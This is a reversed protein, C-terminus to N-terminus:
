GRRLRGRVFAAVARRETAQLALGWSAATYIVAIIAGYLLIGAYGEPERAGRLLVATALAVAVPLLFPIATARLHEWLSLGLARCSLIIVAVQNASRVLFLAAAVGPIGWQM